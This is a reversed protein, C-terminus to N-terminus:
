PASVEMELSMIPRLLGRIEGDPYNATHIDIYMRGQALMLEYDPTLYVADLIRGDSEGWSQLGRILTDVHYLAADRHVHVGRALDLAVPASLGSFQGEIVLFGNELSAEVRGAARCLSDRYVQCAGGKASQVYALDAVYIIQAQALAMSSGLGLALAVGAGVTLFLRRVSM